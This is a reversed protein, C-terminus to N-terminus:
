ILIGRREFEVTVLDYVSHAMSQAGIADEYTPEPWDGPYRANVSWATLESLTPHKSKVIWAEPLMDLLTNLDHTHSFRIKELVLAAKLAKEAVQQCLWCVLAPSSPKKNIMHMADTLDQNSYQLWRLAVSEVNSNTKKMCSREKKFLKM